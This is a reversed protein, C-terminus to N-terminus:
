KSCRVLIERQGVLQCYLIQLEDISQEILRIGMSCIERYQKDKQNFETQSLENFKELHYFEVAEWIKVEDIDENIERLYQNKMNIVM